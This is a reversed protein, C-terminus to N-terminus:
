SEVIQHVVKRTLSKRSIETIQLIMDFADITFMKTKIIVNM